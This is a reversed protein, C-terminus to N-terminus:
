LLCCFWKPFRFFLPKTGDACDSTEICSQLKPVPQGSDKNEQNPGMQEKVHFFVQSPVLMVLIPDYGSNIVRKQGVSSLKKM